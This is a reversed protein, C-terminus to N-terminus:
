LSILWDSGGEPNYVGATLLSLIGFGFRFLPHHACAPLKRRRKLSQASLVLFFYPLLVASPALILRNEAM